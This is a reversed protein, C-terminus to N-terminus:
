LKGKSFDDFKQTKYADSGVFSLVLSFMPVPMFGPQAGIIKGEGDIFVYTPTSRVGFGAALEKMSFSRGNYVIMEDSEIDVRVFHYYADMTVGVSKDVYVESVMRKCFGCWSAYMDLVVKKGDKKALNQAQELKKYTFSAKEQALVGTPIAIFLLLLFFRMSQIILGNM